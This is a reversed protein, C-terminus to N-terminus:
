VIEYRRKTCPPNKTHPYIVGGDPVTQFSEAAEPLKPFCNHVSGRVNHLVNPNKAIQAETLVMADLTSIMVKTNKAKAKSKPTMMKPPDDAKKPDPKAQPKQAPATSAKAITKKPVPKAKPTQGSANSAM